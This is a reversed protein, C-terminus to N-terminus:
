DKPGPLRSSFWVEKGQGPHVQVGWRESLDRVLQLGRQIVVTAKATLSYRELDAPGVWAAEDVDSSARRDGGIPWCLYDVLVFHYRVPTQAGEGPPDARVVRDLVGCLGLVRVRLGCEEEVERVVADELREGLEILGGPISWRGVSPPAGRRVLVVRDGDLVIAGVGARPADPYERAVEAM